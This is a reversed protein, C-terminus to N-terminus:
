RLYTFLNVKLTSVQMGSKFTVKYRRLITILVTNDHELKSTKSRPDECSTMETKLDQLTLYKDSREERQLTTIHHETDQKKKEIRTIRLSIRM